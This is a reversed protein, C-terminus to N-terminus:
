SFDQGANFGYWNSGDLTSLIYVDIDNAGDSVTPATGGAWKVSGWAFSRGGTGDQKIM